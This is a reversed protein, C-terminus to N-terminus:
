KPYVSEFCRLRGGSDCVVVQSGEWDASVLVSRRRELLTMLLGATPDYWLDIIARGRLRAALGPWHVTDIATLHVPADVAPAASLPSPNFPSFQHDERAV